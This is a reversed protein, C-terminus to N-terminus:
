LHDNEQQLHDAHSQLEAMQRAQEKQKAEMDQCWCLFPDKLTQNAPNGTMIIYDSPRTPQDPVVLAEPALRGSSLPHLWARAFRRHAKKSPREWLRRWNYTGSNESDSSRRLM